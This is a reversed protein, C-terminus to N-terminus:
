TRNAPSQRRFMASAMYATLISFSIGFFSIFDVFRGPTSKDPACSVAPTANKM